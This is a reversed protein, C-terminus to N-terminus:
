RSRDGGTVTKVINVRAKIIIEKLIPMSILRIPCISPGGSHKGMRVSTGATMSPKMMRQAPVYPTFFALSALILFAKRTLTTFAVHM